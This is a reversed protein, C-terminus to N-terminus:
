EDITKTRQELWALLSSRPYCILGGIRVRGAPGRGQSDLNALYRPSLLGRTFKGVVKRPIYEFDNKEKM